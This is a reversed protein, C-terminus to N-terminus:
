THHSRKAARSPQRNAVPLLHIACLQSYLRNPRSDNISKVIPDWRAGELFLGHIYVGDAPKEDIREHAIDLMRFAYSVTDLDIRHKRSYNQLPAM